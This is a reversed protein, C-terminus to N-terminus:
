KTNKKVKYDIVEGTERDKFSVLYNEEQEKISVFYDREKERDMNPMRFNKGDTVTLARGNKLHLVGYFRGRLKNVAMSAIERRLGENNAKNFFKNKLSLNDPELAEKSSTDGLTLKEAYGSAKLTTGVVENQKLAIEIPNNRFQIFAEGNELITFFEALQDYDSTLNYSVEIKPLTNEDAKITGSTNNDVPLSETGDIKEAIIEIKGVSNLDMGMQNLAGQVYEVVELPDKFEVAFLKKKLEEYNEADSKSKESNETLMKRLNNEKAVLTRSKDEEKKVQLTLQQSKEYPLYNLYYGVGLIIAGMMGMLFKENELFDRVQPPLKSLFEDKEDNWREKLNSLMEVKGM